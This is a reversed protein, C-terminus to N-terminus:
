GRTVPATQALVGIPSGRRKRAAEGQGPSSRAAEPRPGTVEPAKVGRGEHWFPVVPKDSESRSRANARLRAVSGCERGRKELRVGHRQM